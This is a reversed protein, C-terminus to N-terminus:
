KSLRELDALAETERDRRNREQGLSGDGSGCVLRYAGAWM